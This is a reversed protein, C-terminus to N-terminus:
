YSTILSSSGSLEIAKPAGPTRFKLRFLALPRIPGRVPDVALELIKDIRDPHTSVMEAVLPWYPLRLADASSDVVIYDVHMAELDALLDGARRYKLRLNRGMWDDSALVKSGRVITAAPVPHRVGAEVVAAGEGNENSVVLVRHGALQRREDLTRMVTRYGLPAQAALLPHAALHAVVLVGFILLQLAWRAPRARVVLTVTTVGLATLGLLPALALTIYRAHSVTHPSLLHFAFAGAAVSSLGAATGATAPSIKSRRAITAAMGVFAFLIPGTGLQHWVQGSFFVWRKWVLMWTLPGFDGLSADLQYAVYLPPVALVMVIAAAVYLGPKRLLRHHGAGVLLVPAVVASIGNGKSMCGLATVIGFLVGDRTAKTHCFRGLWYASELAFMAIVIDIMVSSTLSIVAPTALFLGVAGLAVPVSSFSLIVTYLRWATWTTCLALLVLAAITPSWGPLLVLGLITHFLPPWMFPAIKPYHHYYDRAFALPNQGLGERLYDRLLLGNMLHSSEDSFLGRESHFAGVAIQIGLVVLFMLPALAVPNTLWWPPNLAAWRDAQRPLTAPRPEAVTRAPGTLTFEPLGAARQL